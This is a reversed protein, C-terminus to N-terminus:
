DMLQAVKLFAERIKMLDEREKKLALKDHSVQNLSNEHEIERKSISDERVDHNKKKEAFDASLDAYSSIHGRLTDESSTIEQKLEDARKTLSIVQPKLNETLVEYYEKNKQGQVIAQEIVDLAKTAELVEKQLVTLRNQVLGIKKQDAEDLTISPSDNTVM